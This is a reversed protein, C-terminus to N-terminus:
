NVSQVFEGTSICLTAQRIWHDTYYAVNSVTAGYSTKGAPGRQSPTLAAILACERRISISYDVGRDAGNGLNRRNLTRPAAHSIEVPQHKLYSIRCCAM